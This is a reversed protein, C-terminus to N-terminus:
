RRRSQTHRLHQWPRGALHHSNREARKRCSNQNDGAILRNIFQLEDLYQEANAPFIEPIIDGAHNFTVPFHPKMLHAITFTAEPMRSIRELEDMSHLFREPHYRRLSKAGIEPQLKELQSKVARLISTDIYLWVFSQKALIRRSSEFSSDEVQLDIAGQTTFDRNIDAIPSPGVWGSYLQVYTYGRRLLEHAAESNNITYRVYDLDSFNTPNSDFYRMNLTSTVSLYTAGYNSQANPVIRFGLEQLGQTFDSNDFSMTEMHWADSPYADPIIYYIDPLQRSDLKKEVAPRSAHAAHYADAMSDTQLEAIAILALQALQMALMVAFVMNFAPTLQRYRRRLSPRRLWRTFMVLVFGLALTWITLSSPMIWAVYIHGSLSHALSWIALIFARSHADPFLRKTLPFAVTTAALAAVVILPVERDIVLGFNELYLHLIPYVGLIWLYFPFQLVRHAQKRM